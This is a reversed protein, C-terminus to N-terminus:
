GCFWRGDIASRENNELTKPLARSKATGSVM